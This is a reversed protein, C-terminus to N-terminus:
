MTLKKIRSRDVAIATRYLDQEPYLLARTADRKPYCVFARGDKVPETWEIRKKWAKDYRHCKLHLGLRSLQLMAYHSKQRM